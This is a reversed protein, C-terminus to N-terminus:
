KILYRYHPRQIEGEAVITYARVTKVGDTIEVNVNVGISSNKIQIKSWNLDKKLIRDTLKLLSNDYHQKGKDVQKKIYGELGLRVLLRVEDEMSRKRKSNETNHFGTPYGLYEMRTGKNKIEPTLNFYKCWEVEFWNKRELVM